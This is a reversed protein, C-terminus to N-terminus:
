FAPRARRCHEVPGSSGFRLHSAASSGATPRHLCWRCPNFVTFPRVRGHASRTSDSFVDFRPGDDPRSLAQALVLGKQIVVTQTFPSVTCRCCREAPITRGGDSRLSAQDDCRTPYWSVAPEFGATRVLQRSTPCRGAWTNQSCSITPELGVKGVPSYQYDLAPQGYRASLWTASLEVRLAVVPVPFWLSCCSTRCVDISVSVGSWAHPRPTVAADRAKVWTPTPEFGEPGVREM